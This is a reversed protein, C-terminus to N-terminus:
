NLTIKKSPKKPPKGGAVTNKKKLTGDAEFIQEKQDYGLATRMAGNEFLFRELFAGPIVSMRHKRALNLTLERFHGSLNITMGTMYDAKAYEDDKRVSNTDYTLRQQLGDTTMVETLIIFDSVGLAMLKETLEDIQKLRAEDAAIRQQLADQEQEETTKGESGNMGEQVVAQEGEVSSTQQETSEATSVEQGEVNEKKETEITM